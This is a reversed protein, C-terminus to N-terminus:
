KKIWLAPNIRDKQQWLEFHLESTGTIQNTSVRGIVQKAAVMQGKSLKSESLNSYVTYYDGHQIIVTYDHGPIFQVGAVKGEFVARVEASEDTRIDIGNNTIEINKITPHKQKGYGKSIFGDEVPWPLRGRRSRFAASIQDENEMAEIPAASVATNKPPGVGPTVVKTNKSADTGAIPDNKPAGVPIEPPPKPKRSEAIRKRVEEQIIDEIAKNLSEHDIQKKDLAQKLKSENASLSQLLKNKDQLETTLTSQQGQMYILLNEKELRIADLNTIRKSLMRKTFSIAESQQSRFQDYKRLFLWRRFAQNLSEASLIYLLPNSLSKRRFANRITKGYEEQMRAIDINLSAVVQSNRDIAQEAEQAESELTTILSERSEIQSQLAIYRDYTAEKNQTTKKLLKDTLQIEKILKKRKEELDKRNQAAVSSSGALSVLLVSWCVRIFYKGFSFNKKNLYINKLLRCM